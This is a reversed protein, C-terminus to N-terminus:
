DHLSRADASPLNLARARLRIRLGSSNGIRAVAIVPTIAIEKERIMSATELSPEAIKNMTIEVRISTAIESKESLGDIRVVVTAAMAVIPASPSTAAPIVVKPM